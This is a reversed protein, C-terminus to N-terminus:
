GTRQTLSPLPRLELLLGTGPSWRAVRLLASAGAMALLQKKM